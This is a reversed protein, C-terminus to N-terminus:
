CTTTGLRCSRNLESVLESEARHRETYQDNLYRVASWRDWFSADASTAPLLFQRAEKIWEDHVPGLAASVTEDTRLRGDISCTNTYM